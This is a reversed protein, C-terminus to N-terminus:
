QEGWVGWVGWVLLQEGLVLLQEGLVFLDFDPTRSVGGGGFVGDGGGGCGGGGMVGGGRVWDDEFYSCSVRHWVDAM